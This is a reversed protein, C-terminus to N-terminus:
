AESCMRVIAMVVGVSTESPKQQYPVYPIMGLKIAIGGDDAVTHADNANQTLEFLVRDGYETGIVEGLNKLSEYVQQRKRHADLANSLANRAQERLSEAPSGTPLDVATNM